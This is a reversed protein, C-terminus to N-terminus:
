KKRAYVELTDGFRFVTCFWTVPAFIMKVSLRFLINSQYWGALRSHDGFLTRHNFITNLKVIRFGSRTLITQLSKPNFYHLHHPPIYYRWNEKQLFRSFSRVNPTSLALLGGPKLLENIKQFYALPELVHEILAWATVVSFKNEYRVSLFDGVIINDEGLQDKAIKGATTSKEVGKIEWGKGKAVDLFIGTACGIDLLSDRIPTMSEIKSLRKEWIRTLKKNQITVDYREEAHYDSNSYARTLTQDDPLPFVFQATCRNCRFLDYGNKSFLLRINEAKCFPCTNLHPKM